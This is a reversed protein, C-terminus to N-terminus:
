GGDTLLNQNPNEMVIFTSLIGWKRWNIRVILMFQPILPAM